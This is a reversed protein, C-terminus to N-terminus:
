LRDVMNQELGGDKGGAQGKPTAAKRLKDIGKKYDKPDYGAAKMIRRLQYFMHSLLVHPLVCMNGNAHCEYPHFPVSFYSTRLLRTHTHPHTLSLLM